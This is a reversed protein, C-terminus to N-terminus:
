IPDLYNGSCRVGVVRDGIEMWRVLLGGYVGFDGCTRGDITYSRETRSQNTLM